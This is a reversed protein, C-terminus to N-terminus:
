LKTAFENCNVKKDTIDDNKLITPHEKNKNIAYSKNRDWDNKLILKLYNCLQTRIYKGM